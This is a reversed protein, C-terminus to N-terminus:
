EGIIVQLAEELIVQLKAAAQCQAEHLDKSALTTRDFPGYCSAFWIDGCGVYRHVSLRFNGIKAVAATTEGHRQEYEWKIM